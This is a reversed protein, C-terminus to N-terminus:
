YPRTPESIHILSLYISKETEKPIGRGLSYNIGTNYQSVSVGQTALALDYVFDDKDNAQATLSFILFVGKLFFTNLTQNLSYKM